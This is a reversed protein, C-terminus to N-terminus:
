EGRAKRRRDHKRQDWVAIGMVVALLSLGGCVIAFFMM